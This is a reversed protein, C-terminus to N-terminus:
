RRHDGDLGRSAVRHVGLHVPAASNTCPDGRAAQWERDRSGCGRAGTGAARLAAVMMDTDLVYSAAVQRHYQM